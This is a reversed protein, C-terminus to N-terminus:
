SIQKKLIINNYQLIVCFLPIIITFFYIFLSIYTHIYINYVSLYTYIANIFSMFSIIYLNTPYYRKVYKISLMIMLIISILLIGFKEVIM